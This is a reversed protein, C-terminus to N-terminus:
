WSPLPRLGPIAHLPLLWRLQCGSAESCPTRQQLLQCYVWSNPALRARARSTHRRRLCTRTTQPGTTRLGLVRPLWGCTHGAYPPLSTARRTKLKPQDHAVSNSSSPISPSWTNPHQPLAYQVLDQHRVSVPRDRLPAPPRGTGRGIGLVGPGSGRPQFMPNGRAAGFLNGRGGVGAFPNPPAPTQNTM